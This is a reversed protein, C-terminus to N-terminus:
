TPIMRIRGLFLEMNWFQNSFRGCPIAFHDMTDRSNIFQVLYRAAAKRDVKKHMKSLSGQSSTHVGGMVYSIFM